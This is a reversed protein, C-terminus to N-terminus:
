KERDKLDAYSFQVERLDGLDGFVLNGWSSSMIFKIFIVNMQGTRPNQKIRDGWKGRLYRQKMSAINLWM